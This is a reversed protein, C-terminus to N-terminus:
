KKFVIAKYGIFNWALSVVTAVIKAFNKLLDPNSFAGSNALYHSVAALLASNIVLGIASVIFFALFQKGVHLSDLKERGLGFGIWAAIQAILFIALVLIYYIPMASIKAGALVAIFGIGGIGGVVVLRIFNKLVDATQQADFTWHRNWFYSQVMAAAFGVVNVTGLQFGSTIGLSKSIFNLIVFDLATNLVGIAVFRLIQLIIPKQSLLRQLANM